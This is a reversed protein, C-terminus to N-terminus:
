DEDFDLEEEEENVDLDASCFPCFAIERKFRTDEQKFSITGEGDCETCTFKEKAM